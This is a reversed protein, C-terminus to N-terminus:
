QHTITYWCNACMGVIQGRKVVLLGPINCDKLAMTPMIAVNPCRKLKTAGHHLGKSVVGHCKGNVAGGSPIKNQNPSGNGDVIM